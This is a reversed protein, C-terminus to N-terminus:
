EYVLAGEERDRELGALIELRELVAEAEEKTLTAGMGDSRRTAWDLAQLGRELATM